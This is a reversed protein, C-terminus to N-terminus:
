FGHTRSLNEYETLLGNLEILRLYEKSQAFYRRAQDKRGLAASAVALYGKCTLLSGEFIYFKKAARKEFEALAARINKDMTAYDRERFAIVGRLYPVYVRELESLQGKEARALLQKAEAPSNFRQVLFMGLDLATVPKEPAEALAQRHRLDGSPEHSAAM